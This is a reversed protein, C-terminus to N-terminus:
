SHVHTEILHLPPAAAVRPRVAEVAEAVCRRAADPSDVQQRRRFCARAVAPDTTVRRLAAALAQASLRDVTEGVGLRQLRDANDFQDHAFPTVVQPVGAALALASSGIGGHHVLACAHPLLLSMPVYARALLGAPLDAVERAQAGLLVARHGTTRLAGVAAEFFAPGHVGTSGPTVVVPPPGQDLFEQLEFDLEAHDGADFLPFGCSHFPRPWDFQQPAFWDPFLGLVGQPSHVWRSLVGGTPALGLDRRVGDLLPRFVRDLLVSDIVRICASRVALPAERLLRFRPHVPPRSASLITSPSVQASLYRVGLKEQALRAGFAWLSGIVVTDDDAERAVLDFLPRVQPSVANWLTKLSTRPSWLAPDDMVARFEAEHGLARFRLGSREVLPQFYPNTCISVVHGRQALARGIGLFPHVDGSSGLTAILVRM